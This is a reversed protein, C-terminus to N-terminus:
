NFSFCVCFRSCLSVIKAAAKRERSAISQQEECWKIVRQREQAIWVALEEKSHMVEALAADHQKRLKKLNANEVRLYCLYDYASDILM